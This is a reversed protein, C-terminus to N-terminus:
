PGWSWAALRLWDLTEHSWIWARARRGADIKAVGTMGPRLSASPEELRAEARFRNHGDAAVAVPTVRDITFPLAEGPLASLVLRGSQDNAVFAVDREDVELVVRYGDLPAVEFLVEGKEVPSGLRQHLDGRVVVGDFPAELVTRALQAETLDLQAEAQAIRAGLISQQTRDHGALAERQERRLQERRGEWKRREVQLDRDDLRALIKGRPVLDGPRAEVQLLYGEVGAVVARQIRGELSADATVRHTAPAVSAVLLLAVAVAAAVRGERRTLIALRTEALHRLRVLPPAAAARHLAIAPGLLAAVEESLRRARGDIGREAPRECTFAGVLAGHAVLPVTWVAGAGHRERLAAHARDIHAPAGRLAPHTITTDQDCAEDMAAALDTLLASRADFESSHSLARLRMGNRERLGIGVRECGLHGALDTALATLADPLEAHALATGALAVVGALRACGTERRALPELWAAGARLRDIWVPAESEKADSIELAVAGPDAGPLSLALCLSGLPAGPRPPRTEVLAERQTLAARAMALLDPTPPTAQPWRAIRPSEGDPYPRVLLGRLVRPLIGCQEALWSADTADM